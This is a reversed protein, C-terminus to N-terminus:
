SLLPAWAQAAAPLVPSACRMIHAANEAAATAAAATAGAGMGSCCLHALAPTLMCILLQPLLLLLQLDWTPAAAPLV